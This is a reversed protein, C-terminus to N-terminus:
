LGREGRYCVCPSRKRQGSGTVLTLAIFSHRKHDDEDTRDHGTDRTNYHCALQKHFARSPATNSPWRSEVQPLPGDEHAASISGFMLRACSWTIAGMNAACSRLRHIAMSSGDLRSWNRQPAAVGYLPQLSLQSKIPYKTKFVGLTSEWEM